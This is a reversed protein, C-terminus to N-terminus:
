RFGVFEKELTLELSRAIDNLVYLPAESLEREVADSVAGITYGSGFGYGNVVRQIRKLETSADEWSMDWADDYTLEVGENARADSIFEDLALGCASAWMLLVREKVVEAVQENHAYMEKSWPKTIQIGYQTKIEKKM